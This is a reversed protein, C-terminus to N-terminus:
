YALYSGPMAALRRTRAFLGAPARAIWRMKPAVHSPDLNLGTLDFVADEGAAERVASASPTPAGDM